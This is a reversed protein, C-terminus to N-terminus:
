ASSPMRSELRHSSNLRTSKRDVKVLSELDDTHTTSLEKAPIVGELGAGLIGVVVQKDEIALVEGKVIDGIHIEQVSNLAEEMTETVQGEFETM